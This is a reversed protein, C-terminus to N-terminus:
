EEKPIEIRLISNFLPLSSPVITFKNTKSLGTFSELSIYPRQSSHCFKFISQVLLMYVYRWPSLCPHFFFFNGRGAAPLSFSLEFNQLPLLAEEDGM